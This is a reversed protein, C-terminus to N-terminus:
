VNHRFHEALTELATEVKTMPKVNSVMKALTEDDVEGPVDALTFSAKM